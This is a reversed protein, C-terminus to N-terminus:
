IIPRNFLGFPMVKYKYLGISTIFTIFEENKPSIRLLNSVVYLVPFYLTKGPISLAINNYSQHRRVIPGM